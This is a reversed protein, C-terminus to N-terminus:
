TPTASVQFEQALPACFTYYGSVVLELLKRFENLDLGDAYRSNVFMVTGDASNIALSFGGAITTNLELMRRMLPSVNSKPLYGFNIQVVLLEQGQLDFLSVTFTLGASGLVVAKSGSSSWPEEHLVQDYGLSKLYGNIMQENKM